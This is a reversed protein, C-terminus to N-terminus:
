SIGHRCYSALPCVPKCSGEETTLECSVINSVNRNRSIPNFHFCIAQNRFMEGRQKVIDNRRGALGGVFAEIRSVKIKWPYFKERIQCNSCPHVEDRGAIDIQITM